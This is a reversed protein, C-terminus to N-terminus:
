RTCSTTTAARPPRSSRGLVGEEAFGLRRLVARMPENWEATAAQVRAAEEADFLHDVLLRTAEM